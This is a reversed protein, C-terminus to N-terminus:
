FAEFETETANAAASSRPATAIGTSTRAPAPLAVKAPKARKSVLPENARRGDDPLTFYTLTEFLNAAQSNLEESMSALEESASANTQIVTDLQQIAKGIQDIGTSQEQSASSIEQVVEAARGIDPVITLILAGAEEAIAVSRSSLESIERSATQSREALKRVESAVVAFGKGAEGARAAEIAANLALLNTQRAIEEIIGIRGAIERMAKATDAVIRGGTAADISSKRTIGEAAGANDANQRITSSMEEVSSSVEEASSAQETAGQSLQQATYSIERSGSSVYAASSLVATVIDRLSTIMGSLAAALDGIEDKRLTYSKEVQQRLDGRAIAGALAVGLGLPRTISTALLLGLLISALTAASLVILMVLGTRGALSTNSAAVIKGGEEEGVILKEITINLANVAKEMKGFAIANADADKNLKDLAIAEDVASEFAAAQAVYDAFSSKEAESVLSPKYAEEAKAITARRDAIKQRYADQVEPDVAQILVYVNARLRNTSSAIFALHSLPATSNAYLYADAKSLARINAIGFVGVAAGALSVALFGLVLKPGIKMM